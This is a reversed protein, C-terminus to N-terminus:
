DIYKAQYGRSQDGYGNSQCAPIKPYIGPHNRAEHSYCQIHREKGELLATRPIRPDYIIPRSIRNKDKQTINGTAYLVLQDIM